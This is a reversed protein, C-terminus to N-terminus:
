DNQVEKAECLVLRMANRDLTAVDKYKELLERSDFGHEVVFHYGNPTSYKEFENQQGGIRMNEILDATFNLLLTTDKSDFDFLWKKEAANEPKMAVSCVVSELNTLRIDDNLLKIILAKKVKATSRNNVSVYLRCVEGILGDQVFEYFAERIDKENTSEDVLIAKRREKFGEIHKNDKNRSRFLVVSCEENEM